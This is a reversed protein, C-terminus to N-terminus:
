WRSQTWGKTRLTVIELVFSLVKLCARGTPSSLAACAFTGDHKAHGTSATRETKLAPGETQSLQSNFTNFLCLIAWSGRYAPRMCYKVSLSDNSHSIYKWPPPHPFPPRLSLTQKAWRCRKIGLGHSDGHTEWRWSSFGSIFQTEM